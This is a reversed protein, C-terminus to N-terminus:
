FVAIHLLQTAQLTTTYEESQFLLFITLFPSPNEPCLSHDANSVASSINCLYSMVICSIAFSNVLEDM